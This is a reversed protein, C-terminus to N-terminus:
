LFYNQSIEKRLNIGINNYILKPPLFTYCFDNITPSLKVPREKKM